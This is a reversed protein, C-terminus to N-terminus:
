TTTRFPNTVTGSATVAGDVVWRTASLSTLRFMTGSLAGTTGGAFNISVASSGTAFWDDAESSDVDVNLIGGILYISGQSTIIQVTNSGLTTPVAFDYFIGANGDPTPLTVVAGALRDLLVISGSESPHLTRTAGEVNMSIIVKKANVTELKPNLQNPQAM